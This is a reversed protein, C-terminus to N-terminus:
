RTEIEPVGIWHFKRKTFGPTLDGDINFRRLDILRTGRWSLFIRRIATLDTLTLVTQTQINSQGAPDYKVIVTNVYDTANGAILGRIALEARILQM